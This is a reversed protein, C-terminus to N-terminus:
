GSLPGGADQHFFMMKLNAAELTDGEQLLTDERPFENNIKVSKDKIIKLMYGDPRKAVCAAMDPAFFGKLRITAQESKGIYVTLGTLSYISVPSEGAIIRLAGIRAGSSREKVAAPPSTMIVTADSSVPDPRAAPAPEADNIFQVTHKAVAVEDTNHLDSKAVKQGRLFTGNTSNLDEVEYVGDGRKRFVAHQGSVAPNDIVIDNDPKRGVSIENKEFLYEKIVAGNFKLALKVM